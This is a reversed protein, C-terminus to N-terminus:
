NFGARIHKIWGLTTTLGHARRIKKSFKAVIGSQLKAPSYLAPVPANADYYVDAMAGDFGATAQLTPTKEDTLGALCSCVNDIQDTKPHSL